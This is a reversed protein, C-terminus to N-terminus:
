EEKKTFELRPNNTMVMTGTTKDIRIEQVKDAIGWDGKQEYFQLRLINASDKLVRYKGSQNLRPYGEMVFETASFKWTQSMSMGDGDPAKSLNWTGIIYGANTISKTKMTKCNMLLIAVLSLTLIAKSSIAKM